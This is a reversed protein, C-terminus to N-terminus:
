GVSPYWQRSKLSGSLRFVHCRNSRTFLYLEPSRDLVMQNGGTMSMDGTGSWEGFYRYGEDGVPADAYGHEIPLRLSGCAVSPEVCRDHEVEM